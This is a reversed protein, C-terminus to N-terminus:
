NLLLFIKKITVIEVESSKWRFDQEPIALFVKKLCFKTKRNQECGLSSNQRKGVNSFSLVSNEKNKEKDVKKKKQIIGLGVRKREAEVRFNM